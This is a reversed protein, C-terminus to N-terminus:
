VGEVQRCLDERQVWLELGSPSKSSSNKLKVEGRIRADEVPHLDCSQAPWGPQGKIECLRLPEAVDTLSPGAASSRREAGFDWFSNPRPADSIPASHLAPLGSPHLAPARRCTGESPRVSSYTRELKRTAERRRSVYLALQLGYM